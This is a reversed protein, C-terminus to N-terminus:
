FRTSCQSLWEEMINRLLDIDCELTFEALASHTTPDVNAYENQCLAMSAGQPTAVLFFRIHHPAKVKGSSDKMEYSPSGNAAQCAIEYEVEDWQCDIRKGQFMNAKTWDVDGLMLQVTSTFIDYNRRPRDRENKSPCQAKIRGRRFGKQVEEVYAPVQRFCTNVRMMPFLDILEPWEWLLLYRPSCGTVVSKMGNYPQMLSQVMDGCLTSEHMDPSSAEESEERGERQM